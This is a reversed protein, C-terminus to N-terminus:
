AIIRHEYNNRGNEKVSYLAADAHEICALIDGSKSAIQTHAGVSVTVVRDVLSARHEIQLSHIEDIIEECIQRVKSESQENILMTFEEGGWRAIFVKYKKAIQLLVEGVKKLM